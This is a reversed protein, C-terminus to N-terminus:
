RGGLHLPYGPEGPLRGNVKIVKMGPKVDQADVLTIAGPFVKAAERAMGLSPATFPDADAEGRFIEATWSQKYESDSMGLLNLTVLWEHCGPARQILKIPVGDPWTRKKGAFVKRLDVESINAVLSRPNVIVAVDGSQSVAQPIFGLGVLCALLPAAFSKMKMSTEVEFPLRRKCICAM